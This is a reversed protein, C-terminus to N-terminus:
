VIAVNQVIKAILVIACFMVIKADIVTMVFNVCIVIVVINAGKAKSHKLATPVRSVVRVISVSFVIQVSRVIKRVIKAALIVIKVNIM